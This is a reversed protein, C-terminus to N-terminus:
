KGVQVDISPATASGVSLVVAASGVSLQPVKVDVELMGPVAQSEFIGAIDAAKGGISVTIPLKPRASSSSAGQGTVNTGDTLGEGTVYLSITSGPSAPQAASNASGDANAAVPFLGPAADAVPLDLAAVSKGQYWVEVHTSSKASIEYPAQVDIQEAQAYLLPADAGDFRVEVGGLRTPLAATDFGAAVGTDPGLGAGFLVLLEGPAIPGSQLSGANVASVGGLNLAIQQGAPAMSLARVRDNGSDAFYLTGAGDLVLGAPLNLYAQTATGGDGGFGSADRGAITHIVGDPTVLRIRHNGTDGIFINGNDDVAIGQPAQLQSAAAPGEDGSFGPQGTGGVTSITGAATVKRIRHNQTDAIYLNGFSDLACAGPQNLQAQRSSGGDGASGQAGNGAAVEVVGSVNVRVVRHNGTDIIYPTGTRDFCIGRPSRLPTQAPPQYEPGLGALGTGMVTTISRDLTVRRIRHNGTDAIWINGQPDVAVGAPSSLATTAALVGSDGAAPQGAGTGALTILVLSPLMQRVRQTGADAIYLNGATDFALSGPQRLIAGTAIAGDGISQRYGDGAVTQINGSADVKRLRVDDALFVNGASDIGVDLVNTLAASTAPGGDGQFDKTPGGAFLSRKGDATYTYVATSVSDAVYISGSADVAIAHPTMMSSSASIVTTIVGASIKRVRNNQSDAVYLVGSRDIALGAPCNLKAASAAAGDGSFGATGTGAMTSIRGDPTVKRIRNGDFESIFLNGAADVAVNRPTSLQASAALGGDGTSGKVGTGAVTTIVGNLDIRRVRNNGLDAIYLVGASDAAIGYPLNLQAATAAAGDGSFGAVGTGAVTTIVGAPTVKRIRHNDTDSLYINGARDLALGQIAAIQAAAAPGGDGNSGSGAITDIRYAPPGGASLLGGPCCWMGLLLFWYPKM